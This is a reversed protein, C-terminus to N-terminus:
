NVTCLLRRLQETLQNLRQSVHWNESEDELPLHKKIYAYMKDVQDLQKDMESPLMRHATGIKLEGNHIRELLEANGSNKIQLYRKLTGDGVSAEEALAERVNIPEQPTTSTKALPAGARTKDGGCRSLNEKAKARLVGEKCLALEIRQAANLNRRGLQNEIIWIKADARSAFDMEKVEFGIGHTVCICFRNYGDVIIGDWLLIADHCKRHLLINQELQYYEEAALPPMLAKFEPDIHPKMKNSRKIHIIRYTYKVHFPTYFCYPLTPAIRKGVKQLLRDLGCEVTM